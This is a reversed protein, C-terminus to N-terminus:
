IFMSASTALLFIAFILRLTKESVAHAIRSGFPATFTSALTILIFGYANVYGISGAPLAINNWGGIAYGLAAPIAIVLAFASSTGVARHMPYSLANLFPVSLTGGGIGMISSFLGFTIPAPAIRASYYLPVQGSFYDLWNSQTDKQCLLNLAVAFAVFGFVLSLVNSSLTTNALWTGAAVGAILWPLWSRFLRWDVANRRNHSALSVISTPIITALSTGVALHMIVSSEISILRFVTYLIPVIIIGGGVGLLGALIGAAAGTALLAAALTLLSPEGIM